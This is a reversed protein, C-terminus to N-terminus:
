GEIPGRWLSDTSRSPAPNPPRAAGSSRSVTPHGAWAWRWPRDVERSIGVRTTIHLESQAEAGALLRVPSRPDLLDLGDQAGTVSLASCLRGPGRALDQDRRAAPRRQRAVELGEVVEGARLLVAGASGEVGTVVNCCWHIGYSRYVYLLGARGFMTANRPTPGRHAHSAPDTGVDGYAEVETIVIEVPSGIESRLRMGILAPAVVEPGGRLDPLPKRDLGM